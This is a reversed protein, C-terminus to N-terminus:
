LQERSQKRADSAQADRWGWGGLEKVRRGLGYEFGWARLGFECGSVEGIGSGSTEKQVRVSAM